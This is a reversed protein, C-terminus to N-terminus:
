PCHCQPLHPPDSRPFNISSTSSKRIRGDQMSHSRLPSGHQHPHSSCYDAVMMESHASSQFCLVTEWKQHWVIFKVANSPPHHLQRCHYSGTESRQCPYNSLETIHYNHPMIRLSYELSLKGLAQPIQAVSDDDTVDYLCFAGQISPFPIGNLYKPWVAQSSGSFDVDDFTIEILQVRYLRGALSVKSSSLPSASSKQQELANNIFSTSGVGGKGLVVFTLTVVEGM